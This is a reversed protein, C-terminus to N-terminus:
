AAEQTTTLTDAVAFAKGALIEATAKLHDINVGLREIAYKDYGARPLGPVVDLGMDDALGSAVSCIDAVTSYTENASVPEHHCRLCEVILPSLKFEEAMVASLEAHSFGLIEREVELLDIGPTRECTRKLNRLLNQYHIDLLLYGADLFLGATYIENANSSTHTKALARAVFAQVLSRKRFDVANVIRASQAHDSLNSVILTMVLSELEQWGLLEIAFKVSSIESASYAPSSALKVVRISLKPSLQVVSEIEASPAQRHILDLVLSAQSVEVSLTGCRRALLKLLELKQM